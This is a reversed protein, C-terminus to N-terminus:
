TQQNQNFRENRYKLVGWIIITLGIYMPALIKNIFLIMVWFFLMPLFGYFMKTNQKPLLKQACLGALIGTIAWGVFNQFPVGYWFSKNEYSWMNISVAAPDLVLDFLVLILGTLIPGMWIKKIKIFSTAGIAGFVFISWSLGVTWPLIQDIKYVSTQGYTFSSYPFGTKLAIYEIILGLTSFFLIIFLTKKFGYDRQLFYFIPLLFVIISFESMLPYNFADKIYSVMFAGLFAYGFLGLFIKNSHRDLFSKM